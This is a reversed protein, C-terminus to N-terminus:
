YNLASGGRGSSGFETTFLCNKAGTVSRIGDGLRWPCSHM